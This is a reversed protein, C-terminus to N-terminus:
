YGEEDLNPEADIKKFIMDTVQCSECKEYIGFENRYKGKGDFRFCNLESQNTLIPM